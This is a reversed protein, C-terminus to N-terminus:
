KETIRVVAQGAFMNFVLYEYALEYENLFERFARYEHDRWGPLCFYDDFALVAGPRIQAGIHRFVSRTSSYLDCDINMFSVKGSFEQSFGPLTEDFTGVHFRVNRPADPLRGQTSYSGATEVNRSKGEGVVWADPLGRFTDFGHVTQSTLRAIMNISAGNYVGFELFLGDGDTAAVALEFLQSSTAVHRAGLGHSSAHRFSDVFCDLYPWLRCAEAFRSQAQEQDGCQSSIMGLYFHSQASAPNLEVAKAFAQRAPGLNRDDYLCIGTEHYAPSNDPSIELVRRQCALAGEIDGQCRLARGMSGHLAPECPLLELARRYSDVALPYRNQQQYTEGLHFLALTNRPDLDVARQLTLVARDYQKAEALAIGLQCSARTSDPQLLVANEACVIAEAVKGARQLLGALELQVASSHAGAAIARHYSNIAGNIDGYKELIAAVQRHLAEPQIGHRVLRKIYRAAEKSRNKHMLLAILMITARPDSWGSDFASRAACIAADVEGLQLHATALMFLLEPDRGASRAALCLDRARVAQGSKLLSSIEQKM